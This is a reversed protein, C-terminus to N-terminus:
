PCLLPPGRRRFREWSDLLQSRSSSPELVIRNVPGSSRGPRQCPEVGTLNVLQEQVLRVRVLIDHGVPRFIRDGFLTIQPHTSRMPNEAGVRCLWVRHRAQTSRGLRKQQHGIWGVADGVVGTPSHLYISSPPVGQPFYGVIVAHIPGRRQAQKGAIHSIDPVGANVGCLQRGTKAVQPKLNPRLDDPPFLMEHNAATAVVPLV